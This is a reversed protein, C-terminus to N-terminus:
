YSYESYFCLFTGSEQWAANFHHFGLLYASAYYDSGYIEKGETNSLSYMTYLADMVDALDDTSLQRIERRVYMCMCSGITTTLVEGNSSSIEKITIKYEDFAQCQVTVDVNPMTLNDLSLVGDQCDTEETDTTSCVSYKFYTSTDTYDVIVLSMPSFPEIVADDIYYNM